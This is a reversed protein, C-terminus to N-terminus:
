VIKNAGYHKTGATNEGCSNYCKFAKQSVGSNFLPLITIGGVKAISVAATFNNLAM